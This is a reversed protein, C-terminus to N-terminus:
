WEVNAIKALLTEAMKAFSEHSWGAVHPSLIVKDSQLLYQLPAPLNEDSFMNEFYSKEYELVDLCAGLVKGNKLGEVLDATNVIPGRATNILYFPKRFQLIFDRNVLNKTEATLPTHLSVIDAEEFIAKLSTEYVWDPTVNNKYKDYVLVKVDFGQLKEVFASGMFGYGIVGVTKGQLEVGTNEKRKWIGSRVEADARNLNNFLSLLMGLAHEGVADRNGEPVRLCRINKSEAFATDINELGAGFRGIFKLNTGHALFAADIPFRSRVIIGDYLHLREAILKQESAYDFDLEHGAENLGKELLYHTSDLFLIKMNKM